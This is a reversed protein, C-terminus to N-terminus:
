WRCFVVLSQPSTDFGAGTPERFHCNIMRSIAPSNRWRPRAHGVWWMPMAAENGQKPSEASRRMSYTGRTTRLPELRDRGQEGGCRGRETQRWHTRAAKRALASRQKPSLALVRRQALVRALDPNGRFLSFRRRKRKQQTLMTSHSNKTAVLRRRIREYTELDEVVLLKLGRSASRRKADPFLFSM